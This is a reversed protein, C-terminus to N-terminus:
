TLFFLNWPIDAPHLTGPLQSNPWHNEVSLRRPLKQFNSIGLSCGSWHPWRTQSHIRPLSELAGWTSVWSLVMGSCACTWEGLASDQCGTDQSHRSYWPVHVETRIRLRSWTLQSEPCSIKDSPIEKRFQHHYYEDYYSLLSTPNNQPNLFYKNIQNGQTKTTAHLTKRQPMHSTTGWGPIRSPGKCQSHLRLWQALLRKETAWNHGVRKSGMFQLVGPKGTM